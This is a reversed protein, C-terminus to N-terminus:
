RQVQFAVSALVLYFATKIRERRWNTPPSQDALWTQEPVWIDMAGVITSKEAATLRGGTLLLDIAELARASAQRDTILSEWRAFSVRTGTGGESSPDPAAGREGYWYILANGYNARGLATNASESGMQPAVMDTGALPFDPPYFNFVSPAAFPVQGMIGTWAWEPAVADGDTIGDLARLAGAVIQIPERLRGYRGGAAADASRAESDLLVAALTARLDGRQGSGIARGGGAFIGNNFSQAVRGVYAPTPNSTVFFQILQKGVFPGINPHAMVSDLVANLGQRASRGAPATVGALLRRAIKDHKAEKAVMEGRYFRPNTWRQAQCGANCWPDVGGVPYTWGTLAFAYNRVAGNDYTEVCSGGKLTGDVNLECTGITFLQLLERAFNENPEAGDNDAMNLYAGMFPSLTVKELLTRYNGFANERLTQHYHAFGYSADLERASTVLIQSLAFAMRQRLQDPNAVAQRYFERQVPHASYYDRWCIDARGPFQSDCFSVSSSAHKHVRARLDSQTTAYAYRSVPADMQQLLYKRAGTAQVQALTAVTPGFSAQALLRAADKATTPQSPEDLSLGGSGRDPADTGHLAVPDAMDPADDALPLAVESASAPAAPVEAPSGGGCAATAAILGGAFAVLAARRFRSAALKAM